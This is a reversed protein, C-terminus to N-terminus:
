AKSAQWVSFNGSASAQIHRIQGFVIMDTRPIWCALLCRAITPVQLPPSMDEFSVMTLMSASAIKYGYYNDGNKKVWRADLDKQYLRNPNEEWGEPMRGAKIKKNEERRNRQKPVPVLTADIIQGVLAQLGRSRLYQGYLEFIAEILGAKRLKFTKKSTDGEWLIRRCVEAACAVSM